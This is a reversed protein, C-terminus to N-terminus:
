LNNVLKGLAVLIRKCIHPLTGSLFSCNKIFYNINIGDQDKANGTPQKGLKSSNDNHGWGSASTETFPDRFPVTDDSMVSM